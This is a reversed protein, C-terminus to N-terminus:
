YVFMLLAFAIFIGQSLAFFNICFFFFMHMNVFSCRYLQKHTFTISFQTNELELAAVSTLFHLLRNHHLLLRVVPLLAEYGM